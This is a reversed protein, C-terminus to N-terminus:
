IVALRLSLLINTSRMGIKGVVYHFADKSVRFKQMFGCVVIYCINIRRKGTNSIVSQTLSLPGSADPLAKRTLRTTIREESDLNDKNEEKIFSRFFFNNM